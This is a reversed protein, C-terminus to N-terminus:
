PTIPNGWDETEKCAIFHIHIDGVILKGYEHPSDNGRGLGQYSYRPMWNEFTTLEGVKELDKPNFTVFLHESHTLKKCHQCRSM